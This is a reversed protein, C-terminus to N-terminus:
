AYLPALDLKVIARLLQQANLLIDDWTEILDTPSSFPVDFISSRYFPPIKSTTDPNNVPYVSLDSVKAVCLVRDKNEPTTETYITHREWVFIEKPCNSANIVEIRLRAAEVDKPLNIGPLYVWRRLVVSANGFSVTFDLYEAM